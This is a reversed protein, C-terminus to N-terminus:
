RRDAAFDDLMQYICSDIVPLYDFFTESLYYTLSAGRWARQYSTCWPFFPGEYKPWRDQCVVTLPPVANPVYYMHDNFRSDWEEVPMNWITEDHMSDYTNKMNKVFAPSDIARPINTVTIEVVPDKHTNEVEWNQAFSMKGGSRVRFIFQLESGVQDGDNQYDPLNIPIHLTRGAFEVAQRPGPFDRWLATNFAPCAPLHLLSAPADARSASSLGGILCPLLIAIQGLPLPHRVL